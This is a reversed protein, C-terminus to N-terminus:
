MTLVLTKNRTELHPIGSSSVKLEFYCDSCLVGLFERTSQPLKPSDVPVREVLWEFNWDFKEMLENFLRDEVWLEL